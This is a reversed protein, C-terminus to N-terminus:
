IECTDDNKNKNKNEKSKVQKLLLLLQIRNEMAGPKEIEVPYM